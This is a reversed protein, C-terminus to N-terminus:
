ASGLTTCAGTAPTAACNGGPEQLSTLQNANDYGYTVTGRGDCMSTLNSAADYGFTM